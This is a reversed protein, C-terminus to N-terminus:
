TISIKEDAYFLNASIKSVGNDNEVSEFKTFWIARFLYVINQM